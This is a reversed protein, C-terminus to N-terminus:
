AAVGYAEKSRDSFLILVPLDGGPPKISRTFSIKQIHTLSERFGNWDRQIDCPLIDDWGLRPRSAWIKRLIIKAAITIPTLLGIPDYISYVTSLCQRKTSEKVSDSIGNLMFKIADQETDWEMGLVKGIANENDKKLLAQVAIQDKTRENTNRQGSFRWGKIKFGKAQLITESDSM